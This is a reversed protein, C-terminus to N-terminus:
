ARARHEQKITMKVRALLSRRSPRPTDAKRANLLLLQVTERMQVHVYNKRVALFTVRQSRLGNFYGSFSPVICYVRFVKRPLSIYTPLVCLARFDTVTGHANMMVLVFRKVCHVCTHYVSAYDPCCSNRM